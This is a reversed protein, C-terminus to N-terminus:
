FSIKISADKLDCLTNRLVAKASHVYFHHLAAEIHPPAGPRAM